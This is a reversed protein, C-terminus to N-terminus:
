SQRVGITLLVNAWLAQDATQVTLVHDSSEVAAYFDWKLIPELVLKSGSEELAQRYEAWVPPDGGLAYPDDEPIGMTNIREIPV